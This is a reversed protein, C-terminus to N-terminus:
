QRSLSAGAAPGPTQDFVEEVICECSVYGAPVMRELQRREIGDVATIDGFFDDCFQAARAEDESTAAEVLDVHGKMQMSRLTRVSTATVAIRGGGAINDTAETDDADLILRFRSAADDHGSLVTLGWGRSARAAGDAGVTAVILACGSHLFAVTEDKLVYAIRLM